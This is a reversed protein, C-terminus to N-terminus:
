GHPPLGLQSNLSPIQIAPLHMPTPSEVVKDVFKKIEPWHELLRKETTFSGLVARVEGRAERVRKRHDGRADVLEQNRVSLPHGADFVEVASHCAYDPFRRKKPLTLRAYQGAFTVSFNHSEALWGNPLSQMKRREATTFCARYVDEKFRQWKKELAKGEKAFRHDLILQCIDKRMSRNLRTSM